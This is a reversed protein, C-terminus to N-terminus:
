QLVSQTYCFREGICRMPRCCLVKELQQCIVTQFVHGGGNDFAAASQACQNQGSAALEIFAPMYEAQLVTDIKGIGGTAVQLM